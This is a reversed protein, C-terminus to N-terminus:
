YLLIGRADTITVSVAMCDMALDKLEALAAKTEDLDMPLKTLLLRGRTRRDDNEM